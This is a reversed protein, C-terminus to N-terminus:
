TDLRKMLKLSIRKKDAEVTVVMTEVHDGLALNQNHALPPRMKSVHILGDRGVGVDVFAGFHTVNTVRGTLISGPKLDSMSTM